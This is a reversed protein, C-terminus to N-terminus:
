RRRDWVWRQARSSFMDARGGVVWEGHAPGGNTQRQNGVEVKGDDKLVISYATGKENESISYLVKHGEKTKVVPDLPAEIWSANEPAPSEEVVKLKATSPDFSVYAFTSRYGGLLLNYSGTM